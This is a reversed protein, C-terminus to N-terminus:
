RITVTQDECIPDGVDSEDLDCGVGAPSVHHIGVLDALGEKVVLDLAAVDQDVACREDWV